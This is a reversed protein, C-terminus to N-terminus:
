INNPNAAITVINAAISSDLLASTNLPLVEKPPNNTPVTKNPPAVDSGSTVVLIEETNIAFGSIATPFINPDFMNLM